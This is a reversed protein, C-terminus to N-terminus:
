MASSKRPARDDHEDTPTPGLPLSSVTKVEPQIALTNDFFTVVLRPQEKAARLTQLDIHYRSSFDEDFCIAVRTNRREGKIRFLLYNYYGWCIIIVAVFFLIVGIQGMLRFLNGIGEPGVLEVYALKFGMAWIIITLWPTLLYLFGSWFTLTLLSEVLIRLHSKLRGNDIVEPNAIRSGSEEM